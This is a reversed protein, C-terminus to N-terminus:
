LEEEYEVDREAMIQMDSNAMDPCNMEYYALASKYKRYKESGRCICDIDSLTNRGCFRCIM